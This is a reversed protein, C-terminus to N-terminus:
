QSLVASWREAREPAASDAIVAEDAVDLIGHQENEYDFHAITAVNVPLARPELAWFVVEPDRRPEAPSRLDARVPEDHAPARVRRGMAEPSRLSDSGQHLRVM